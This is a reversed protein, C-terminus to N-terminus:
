LLMRKRILLLTIGYAKRKSQKLTQFIGRYIFMFPVICCTEGKIESVNKGLLFYFVLKKNGNRIIGLNM